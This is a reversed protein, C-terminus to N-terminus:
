LNDSGSATLVIFSFPLPGPDYTMVISSGYVLYEMESSGFVTLPNDSYGATTDLM